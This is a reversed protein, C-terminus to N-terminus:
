RGPGPPIGPPMPPSQIGAKEKPAPPSSTARKETKADRLQIKIPGPEKEGAYIELAYDENRLLERIIEELGQDKYTRDVKTKAEGEVLIERKTAKAIQSLAESVTCNSFTFSWKREQEAADACMGTGFVLLSATLMFSILFSRKKNDM